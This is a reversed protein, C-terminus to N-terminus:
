TVWHAESMKNQWSRKTRQDAYRTQRDVYPIKVIVRIRNGNGDEQEIVGVGKRNLRGEAYKIHRYQQKIEEQEMLYKFHREIGKGDRQSLEEALRGLYIERYDYAFPKLARYHQLAQRRQEHIEELSSFVLWGHYEYKKALRKIRTMSPRGKKGKEKWRRLILHGIQIIGRANNLVPSSPIAGRRGKQCQKDAIKIMRVLIDNLKAMQEKTYEDIHGNNAMQVKVSDYLLKTKTTLNHGSVQENLISNFREKISPIKSTAKRELPRAREHLTEGVIM